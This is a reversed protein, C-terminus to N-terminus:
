SRINAPYNKKVEEIFAVATQTAKEGKWSFNFFRSTETDAALSLCIVNTQPPTSWREPWEVLLTFDDDLYDELGLDYTTGEELRYLDIHALSIHPTEYENILTFSPSRVRSIGLSEGIGHVFSTKGAGLNGSLLVTLGPQLHKGLLAGLCRTETESFSSFSFHNSSASQTGNM